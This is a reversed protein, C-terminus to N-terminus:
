RRCYRFKGLSLSKMSNSLFCSQQIPDATVFNGLLAADSIILESSPRNLNVM